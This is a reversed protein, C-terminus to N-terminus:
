SKKVEHQQDLYSLVSGMAAVSGCIVLSGHNVKSFVTSIASEVSEFFPVHSFRAPIHERAWTRESESAFFGVIEGIGGLIELTKVYDKDQLMSILFRHSDGGIAILSKGLARAGDPNHCVDLVLRLDTGDTRVVARQEFRARLSAGFRSDEVKLQQARAAFTQQDWGRFYAVVALALSANQQLFWPWDRWFVRATLRESSKATASVTDDSFAFHADREFVRARSERMLERMAHKVSEGADAIEGGWGWFLPRDIRAVGVKERAISVLDDGLYQIHDKAIGTVVSVDPQVVNTADWRGGMGVELVLVDPKRDAFHQLALLTMAEFFSVNEFMPGLKKTVTALTAELERAPSVEGDICIRERYHVLHPSTYLGVILGDRKLLSSIYGSTTGKGNTGAVLIIPINQAPSGLAHWAARMRDLGPKIAGTKRIFLAEISDM